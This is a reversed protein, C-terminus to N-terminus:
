WPLFLNKLLPIFNIYKFQSFFVSSTRHFISWASSLNSDPLGVPLDPCYDLSSLFPGPMPCCHPCVSGVSKLSVKDKWTENTILTCNRLYVHTHTHTHTHSCMRTGPWATWKVWFDERCFGLHGPMWTCNLSRYYLIICSNGSTLWGVM